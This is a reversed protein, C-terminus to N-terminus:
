PGYLNRFYLEQEHKTGKRMSIIRIEDESETHVIIVVDWGLLGITVWRRENYEFRTDEFTFTAGDFVQAADAFDLGRKALNTQRKEDHWSFKM